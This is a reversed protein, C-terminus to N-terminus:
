ETGFLDELTPVQGKALDDAETLGFHSRAAAEAQSYGEAGTMGARLAASRAENATHTNARVSLGLKVRARYEANRQRARDIKYLDKTFHRDEVALNGIQESTIDTTLVTQEIVNLAAEPSLTGVRAEAIAKRIVRSNGSLERVALVALDIVQLFRRSDIPM